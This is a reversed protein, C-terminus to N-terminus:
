YRIVIPFFLVEAFTPKWEGQCVVARQRFVDFGTLVLLLTSKNHGIVGIQSIQSIGTMMAM